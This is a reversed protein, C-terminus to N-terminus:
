GDTVGTLSRLGRLIRPAADQSHFTFAPHYLPVLGCAFDGEPAHWTLRKGELDALSGGPMLARLAVGGLTVVILPRVLLLEAYLCPRSAAIEYPYPTRNGPPRFKVVNTVYCMRRDIGAQGLLQDLVRGAAGVFPKGQEAEERGPAEGVLALPARLPGWPEVLPSSAALPALLPLERYEALAQALLPALDATM